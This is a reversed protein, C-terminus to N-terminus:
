LLALQRLAWAPELSLGNAVRHELDLLAEKRPLGGGYGTLAGDSGVVRHCPVIIPVPTAGVAGGVAQIRDLRGIRAAIEKYSVTTGYPLALLEQWVAQKFPTGRLDLDIEFRRREGAFYEELQAAAPALAEPQHGDENLSPGRGPFYLSSVGATSGVLSLPGLPSKYVTWYEM